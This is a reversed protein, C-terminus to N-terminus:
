EETKWLIQDWVDESEIQVSVSVDTIKADLYGFKRCVSSKTMQFCILQAVCANQCGKYKIELKHKFAIDGM